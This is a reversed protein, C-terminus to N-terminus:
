ASAKRWDIQGVSVSRTQKYVEVAERAVEKLDDVSSIENLVKQRIMRIRPLLDELVAQEEKPAVALREPALDIREMVAIEEAAADLRDQVEPHAVGDVRAFRLAEKLAGIATVLHARTCPLCAVAVNRPAVKRDPNGSLPATQIPVAQIAQSPNGPNGSGASGGSKREQRIVEIDHDLKGILENLRDGLTQSGNNGVKRVLMEGIIQVGQVAAAQGVPHSFIDSLGM